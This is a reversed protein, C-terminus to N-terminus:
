MEDTKICVESFKAGSESISSRPWVHFGEPPWFQTLATLESSATAASGFFKAFSWWLWGMLRRLEIRSKPFRPPWNKPTLSLKSSPNTSMSEEGGLTWLISLTISFISFNKKKPNMRRYLTLVTKWLRRRSRVPTSSPFFITSLTQSVIKRRVRSKNSCMERGEGRRAPTKWPPRHSLPLRPWRIFSKQSRFWIKIILCLINPIKSQPNYIFSIHSLWLTLCLSHIPKFRNLPLASSM